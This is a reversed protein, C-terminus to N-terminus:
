RVQTTSPHPANPLFSTGCSHGSRNRGTAQFFEIWRCGPLRAQGDARREERREERKGEKRKGKRRSSTKTDTNFIKLSLSDTNALLSPYELFISSPPLGRTVHLVSTFGRELLLRSRDRLLLLPPPFKVRDPLRNPKELSRTPKCTRCRPVSDTIYGNENFKSNSDHM